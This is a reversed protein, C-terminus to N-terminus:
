RRAQIGNEIRIGERRFIDQLADTLEPEERPLIRERRNLITVEVGLRGFIQAFETAVVGGGIIALSRPLRELAVAEVNTIFGAEALGPIPPVVARAGTAIVARDFRLVDGDVAIEHPSRFRAHGKYLAVGSRRINADGDGGRITDIVTEVRERIAPWDARAGEVAIGYRAATQALHLVEASRVLTKTPDCGANLCTGGVKWQEILAVKVGMAQTEAAITSGAAGAGIVVLDYTQADNSM